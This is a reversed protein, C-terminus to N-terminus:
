AADLDVPADAETLPPAEGVITGLADPPADESLGPVPRVTVRESVPARGRKVEISEVVDAVFLGWEETDMSDLRELGGIVRETSGSAAVAERYAATTEEVEAARAAVGEQWAADGLLRRASTDMVFLRQEEIAEVMAREAEDAAAPDAAPSGVVISGREAAWDRLLRDVEAELRDAGISAPADCHAGRRKASTLSAACRYTRIGKGGRGGVMPGGCAACSAVGSLPFAAPAARREAQEHQALEWTARSVLPEHSNPVRQEGYNQEGLYTRNALLRRVTFKSWVLPRGARKGEEHVLGLGDLYEVVPQLGNRALDFAERVIPAREPHPELTGDEARRYGLPTPGIKAGRALARGKADEWSEALTRWQYRALALLFTWMMEGTPTTPDMGLDVAVVSGGDEHIRQVLGMADVIGLRSLRDMRAVIIGQVEGAKVAELLADLGPRNTRSGSVDLDEEERVVTHGHAACYAEIAARQQEPAMFAAGARGHVRSVRIYAALRLPSSTM